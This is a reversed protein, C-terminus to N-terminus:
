GVHVPAHGSRRKCLPSQPPLGHRCRGDRNGHTRAVAGLAAPLGHQGPHRYRRVLATTRGAPRSPHPVMKLGDLDVERDYTEYRAEQTVGSYAGVGILGVNTIDRERWYWEHFSELPALGARLLEKDGNRRFVREMGWALLPAQSYAPFDRWQKGDRAGPLM